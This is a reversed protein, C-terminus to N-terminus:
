GSLDVMLFIDVWQGDMFIIKILTNLSKSPKTFVYNKMYKNNAAIYREAIYSIGGRLEKEIFLYMDTDSIKELKVGTMKLIVDWSLRSSRFYHCPDLKYLKLCTGIFKEFVDALLFVDKKLYHDRYDSINKM